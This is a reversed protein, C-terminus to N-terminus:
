NARGFVLVANLGGFAFSNSLAYRLKAQRAENPVVDLDCDPDPTGYNITPPVIGHHLALVTAVAELAGAAGLAHGHMSKTSSVLLSKSHDAFVQKIAQTETIDNLQTGTGHANIYNVETTPLEADQLAAKMAAAEGDVSPKLLHYADATMGFGVIEAYIRAGRALAAERLELVMMAAGEGLTLGKRELSFPCCPEPSVVRASEWAKLTVYAFPAESGGTLAADAMGHRVMWYAMGIAHNSSSCATSLTLSPGTLGFELNLQSAGASCMSRPVTLPQVRPGGKLYIRKYEGDQTELGGGSTASVVATRAPDFAIGSDAVAQRGAVSLYQSFPDLNRLAIKDFHQGPEYNELRAALNIKINEFGELRRIGCNGDKLSAWCSPVTEGIASLSGLGTVVVRREKM